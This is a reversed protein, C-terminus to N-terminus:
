STRQKQLQCSPIVRSTKIELYGYLVPVLVQFHLIQFMIVMWIVIVIGSVEGNSFTDRYDIRAEFSIDGPGTSINKYTSFINEGSSKTVIDAFGDGDVDGVGIRYNSGPSQYNKVTAFDIDGVKSTNRWIAISTAGMFNPSAFDIKEDKDFDAMMLRYPFQGVGYTADDSPDDTAWYEVAEFSVVSSGPVTTNRTSAGRNDGGQSGFFDIRGDGDIDAARAGTCRGFNSIITEAAGFSINGPGTSTNLAVKFDTDSGMIDLKGDNNVDGVFIQYGAVDSKDFAADFGINGIGTSTNRFVQAPTVLDLLGDGDM